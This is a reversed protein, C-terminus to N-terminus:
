MYGKAIYGIGLFTTYIFVALLLKRFVVWFPREKDEDTSKSVTRTLMSAILAIGVAQATDIAVVGLPVVFWGWMIHLVWGEYITTAAIGAIVALFGIIGLVCGALKQENDTM